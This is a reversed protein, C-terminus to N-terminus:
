ASRDFAEPDIDETVEGTEPDHPPDAPHAPTSKAARKPAPPPVAGSYQEGYAIRIGGNSGDPNRPTPDFYLVLEKGAWERTDRGGLVRVMWKRNTANLVLGKDTGRFTMVNRKEKQSSGPKPVLQGGLVKDITLKVPGPILFEKCLFPSDSILLETVKM